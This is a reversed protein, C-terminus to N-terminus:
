LILLGANRLQEYTLAWPTPQVGWSAVADSSGPIPFSFLCELPAGAYLQNFLAVWQLLPQLSIPGSSKLPANKTSSELVYDM